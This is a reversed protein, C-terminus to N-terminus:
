KKYRKGRWCEVAVPLGPAWAPVESLMVSFEKLAITPLNEDVESVAEDHVHMVIPYTPDLRLMAEALSRFLM